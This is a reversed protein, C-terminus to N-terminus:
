PQTGPTVVKLLVGEPEILDVLQPKDFEAVGENGATDRAVLRLFVRDPINPPLQWTHRGTNPLQSAITKWEGKREAWELTIPNPALNADTATWTIVLADRRTPHPAPPDLRVAPPTLDVEIRMQPLDGSRPPAKALGARSSVVLRLGFVGEGPLELTRQFKNDATPTKEEADEAYRRWSRGNDETLWLEVKGVGSPGVRPVAYEVTVAKSKVVQVSPMVPAAPKAEVTGSSHASPARSENSFAPGTGTDSKGAASEKSSVIPPVLQDRESKVPPNVEAPVVQTTETVPAPAPSTGIPLPDPTKTGAPPLIPETAATTSKLSTTAIGATAAVEREDRGSNSALDSITMRLSVKDASAVRFQTKGTLAPTLPATYWMGTPADAARYELRLSALDPNEEQIEWAVELDDGKREASAIRVLPRLTDVVVKQSPPAKTIDRPNHNGNQDVVDITLWYTGDRPAFYKAGDQDPSVVAEQRWTSGKDPSVFLLLERILARESPKIDLPVKFAQQNLYVIDSPAAGSALLLWTIMVSGSVM